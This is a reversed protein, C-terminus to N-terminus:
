TLRPTGYIVGYVVVWAVVVFHWYMANDEVDSHRRGDFHHRHALAALVATDYVDTVLHVTHLLLLGWLISGYASDTWDANLTTFEFGRLVLLAVGIATMVLLWRRVARQDHDRGARAALVNPWESALMLVLGLTSWLLGPPPSGPPWSAENPMLYYYAGIALLMVTGEVLIFGLVGWWNLTRPGSGSDPLEAVSAVIEPARSV